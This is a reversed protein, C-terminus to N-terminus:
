AARHWWHIDLIVDTDIPNATSAAAATADPLAARAAPHTGITDVPLTAPAIQTRIGAPTVWITTGDDHVELNWGAEHKLKHHRACLPNCTAPPPPDARATPTSTTSTAPSPAASAAPHAATSTAPKSSANCPAPPQYVTTGYDILRGLPDTVLRRWTSGHESFAIM